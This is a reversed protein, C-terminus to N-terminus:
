RRPRGEGDAGGRRALRELREAALVRAREHARRAQAASWAPGRGAIPKRWPAFAGRGSRWRATFNGGLSLYADSAVHSGDISLYLFQAPAAPTDSLTSAAKFM